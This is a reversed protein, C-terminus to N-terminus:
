QAFAALQEQYNQPNNLYDLLQPNGMGTVYMPEEKKFGFNAYVIEQNKPMKVEPHSSYHNNKVFSYRGGEKVVYYAMGHYDAIPEYLPKYDLSLWNAVVLIEEGINIVIHGYNPPYIVKDGVGAEIAEVAIVQKFEADMKQILFLAKGALVEYMEPHAIETGPVNAHYHGLTKNFEQGLMIPPVITFDHTLHKSTVIEMHEPLHLGRYVDYTSEASIKVNQNLLVTVMDSFKRAFTMPFEKMPPNFKLKLDDTLVVPLGSTKKLDIM